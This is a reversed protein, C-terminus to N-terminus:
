RDALLDAVRRRALPRHIALYRADHRGARNGVRPQELCVPWTQEGRRMDDPLAGANGPEIKGAPPQRQPFGGAGLNAREELSEGRAFQQMRLPLAEPSAPGGQTCQWWPLEVSVGRLTSESLLQARAVEGRKASLLRRQRHRGGACQELVGLRGLLR